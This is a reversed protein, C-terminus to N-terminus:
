NAERRFAGYAAKRDLAPRPEVTPDSFIMQARLARQPEGDAVIRLAERLAQIRFDSSPDQGDASRELRDFFAAIDLLRHRNELFYEDILQSTTQPCKM